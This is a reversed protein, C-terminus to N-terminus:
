KAEKRVAIMLNSYGKGILSGYGFQFPLSKSERTMDNQLETQISFMTGPIDIRRYKGFLSIDWQDKRFMQYPIGTDDQIVMQSKQYISDRLLNFQPLQLLYVASKMILRFKPTNKLHQSAKGKSDNTLKECFYILSKNKQNVPADPDFFLVKIGDTETVPNNFKLSIGNLNQVDRIELNMRNMFFLLVPLIGRINKNQFFKVEMIQTQFYNQIGYQNVAGKLSELHNYVEQPNANDIIVNGVDEMAVMTYEVADPYMLYMNIFDAGSLPYFVPIKQGSRPINVSWEKLPAITESEVKSWWLNMFEAYKHYKENDTLKLLKENNEIKKGSLFIAIDNWATTPKKEPEIRTQNVTSNCFLLLFFIHVPFIIKFNKM